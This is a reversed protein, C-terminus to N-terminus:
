GGRLLDDDVIRHALKELDVPYAGAQLLEKIQAIRQTVKPDGTESAAQAAAPSIDVVTSSTAPPKTQTPAQRAEGTSIPVVVKSDIRM